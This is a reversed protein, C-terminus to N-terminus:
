RTYEAYISLRSVITTGSAFTFDSGDAYTDGVFKTTGVLDEYQLDIASANHTGLWYTGPVLSVSSAFSFTVWAPAAGFPLAVENTTAIWTSPQGAADTYIVGRVTTAAVSVGLHAVLTHVMASENLTASSVWVRNNGTGQNSGGVVTSGFTGSNPNADIGTGSADASGGNGADDAVDFGIRGCAACVMAVLAVVHSLQVCSYRTNTRVGLRPRHSANTMTTVISDAVLTRNTRVHWRQV